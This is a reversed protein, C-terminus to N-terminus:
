SNNNYIIICNNILRSLDPPWKTSRFCDLKLCRRIRNIVNETVRIINRIHYIYYLQIRVMYYQSCCLAKNTRYNFSVFTYSFTEIVRHIGYRVKKVSQPLAVRTLVNYVAYVPTTSLLLRVSYLKQIHKPRVSYYKQYHCSKISYCYNKNHWAGVM